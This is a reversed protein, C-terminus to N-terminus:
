TWREPQADQFRRANTTALAAHSAFMILAEEDKSTFATSREKELLVLTGVREGRHCVPAALFTLEPSVPMPPRFKPLGLRRVYSNINQLWLPEEIYGFHVM